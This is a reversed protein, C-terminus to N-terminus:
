TKRSAFFARIRHLKASHLFVTQLNGVVAIDIRSVRVFDEGSSQKQGEGAWALSQKTPFM